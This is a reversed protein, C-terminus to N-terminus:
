EQRGKTCTELDQLLPIFIGHTLLRLFFDSAITLLEQIALACMDDKKADVVLDWSGKEALAKMAM